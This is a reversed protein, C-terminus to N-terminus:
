QQSVQALCSFKHDYEEQGCAKGWAVVGELPRGRIRGEIVQKWIGREFGVPDHDFQFRSLPSVAKRENSMM